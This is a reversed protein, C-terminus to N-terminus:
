WGLLEMVKDAKREEFAKLIKDVDDQLPARLLYPAQDVPVGRANRGNHVIVALQGPVFPSPVGEWHMQLGGGGVVADSVVIISPLKHIQGGPVLQWPLLCICPSTSVMGCMPRCAASITKGTAAIPAFDDERVEELAQWRIRVRDTAIQEAMESYYETLLIDFAELQAEDARQEQQEKALTSWEQFVNEATKQLKRAQKAARGEHEYIATCKAQAIVVQPDEAQLVQKLAEYSRVTAANGVWTIEKPTYRIAAGAAELLRDSEGREGQGGTHWKAAAECAAAPVSATKSLLRQPIPIRCWPQGRAPRLNNRIEAATGVIYTATGRTEEGVGSAAEILGTLAATTGRMNTVGRPIRSEAPPDPGFRWMEPTEQQLDLLPRSYETDRSFELFYDAGREAIIQRMRILRAKDRLTSGSRTAQVTVAREYEQRDRFQAAYVACSGDGRTTHPVIVTPVIRCKATPTFGQADPAGQEVAIPRPEVELVVIPLGREYRTAEERLQVEILTLHPFAGSRALDEAQVEEYDRVAEDRIQEMTPDGPRALLEYKNPVIQIAAEAASAVTAYPNQLLIRVAEFRVAERPQRLGGEACQRAEPPEGGLGHQILRRAYM